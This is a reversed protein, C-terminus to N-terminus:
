GSLSRRHDSSCASNLFPEDFASGQSGVNTRSSRSVSPCHLPVWSFYLMARLLPRAEMDSSCELLASPENVKWGSVQHSM